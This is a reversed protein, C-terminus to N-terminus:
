KTIFIPNGNEDPIAVPFPCYDLEDCPHFDRNTSSYLFPKNNYLATYFYLTSPEIPVGRLIKLRYVDDPDDILFYKSKSDSKLKWSIPDYAGGLSSNNSSNGVRLNPIANNLVYLLENYYEALESGFCYPSSIKQYINYALTKDKKTYGNHLESDSGDLTIMQEVLYVAKLLKLIYDVHGDKFCFCLYDAMSSFSYGHCIATKISVDDDEDADRDNKFYDYTTHHFRFREGVCYLAHNELILCDNATVPEGRFSKIYM